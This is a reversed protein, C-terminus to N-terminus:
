NLDSFAKAIREFAEKIMPRPSSLCIREFGAGKDPDFMKGGELIVNADIYIRKRIEEHSIGYERFDMWFIYTGEPRVFKVKPMNDKLFTMVWDVAEEKVLM